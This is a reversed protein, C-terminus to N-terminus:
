ESFSIRKMWGRFFVKQDDRPMTKFLGKVDDFSNTRYMYYMFQLGNLVKQVQLTNAGNLRNTANITQPGVRGDIMVTGSGRVLCIALQWFSVARKHGLNVAQEFIENATGQHHLSELKLPKWFEKVYFQQAEDWSPPV